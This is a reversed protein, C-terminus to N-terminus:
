VVATRIAYEVTSRVTRHKAPEISFVNAYRIASQEAIIVASFIAFKVAELESMFQAAGDSNCITTDDAHGITSRIPQKVTPMNTAVITYKVSSDNAAVNSM